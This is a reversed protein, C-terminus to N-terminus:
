SPQQPPEPSPNSPREPRPGRNGGRNQNNGGAGGQPRPRNTSPGQPRRDGRNGQGQPRPSGTEGAGSPTSAGGAPAGQAAASQGGEGPARSKKKKKKKKLHDMRTLSDQGVVNEYDPTKEPAPPLMHSEMLDVPKEKNKNMKVIDKVRDVPMAVWADSLNDNSNRDVMYSYWMTRKFIDTKQHRASGKATHLYIDTNPFDKIADMYSDLEYNLCCKLKGCQGSLKAPNLSINQYRAASTNVSKFNTLWTSCCLERGCDGLGGLRGAEQRMGIQRMEVRTKFDEALLKILERFDVRHEATYFVTVKKRDGQFELDNVKMNLKLRKAFARTKFLADQELEKAENWKEIDVPKALRYIAKIDAADETVNKKKMQLRVLEGCLSVIGIDHGPSSEVAVVDGSRLPINEANRFFEKRTGKFRIEVIPFLAQGMPLEMDHLWDHVNLKNCGSSGCVGNNQCGGPSGDKGTSCSSCGM